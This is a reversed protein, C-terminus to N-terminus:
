CVMAMVASGGERIIRFDNRRRYWLSSTLGGEAELLVASKRPEIEMEALVVMADWYMSM